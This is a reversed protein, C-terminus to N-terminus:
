ERHHYRHHYSRRDLRGLDASKSWARPHLTSPDITCPSLAPLLYHPQAQLGDPDPHQMNFGSKPAILAPSESQSSSPSSADCDVTAEPTAVAIAEPISPVPTTDLLQEQILSYHRSMQKKVKKESVRSGNFYIDSEKGELKRKRMGHLTYDWEKKTM